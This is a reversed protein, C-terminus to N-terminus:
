RPMDIWSCAVETVPVALFRVDECTMGPELIASTLRLGYGAGTDVNLRNARLEPDRRPSHGHVVYRPLPGHHDLFEGRIDLLDWLTQDELAVGPRIGAHTFVRLGDDFLSPMAALFAQHHAPIAERLAAVVTEPDGDGTVGYSEATTIGGGAGPKLPLWNAYSRMDGALLDLLCQEHNGRVAIVEIGPLDRPLTCALELTGAPDFGRDILDGILILRAPSPRKTLDDAIKDLLRKFSVRMGHIDGIVYTRVNM